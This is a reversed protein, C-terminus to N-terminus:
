GPAARHRNRGAKKAEYLAADALEILRPPQTTADPVLTASGLSITVCSAADSRAHSIALEEISRRVTEAVQAAGDAPTDAMLLCFEEGGYRAALDGPRTAGQKIAAAVQRLCDDGALHGYHDNFRKFFDVDILILSAPASERRCRRWEIDLAEDFRRRNAIGTLGDLSSLAELIANKEALQRGLEELARYADDRQQQALYSKSHARIRAVLEIQDPLKVLYDSAGIEFARSKDRPDERSSLVIIPIQAIVPHERMQQVLTFGDVGPMILDQLITTPRLAAATDIAKQADSCYHFEIDTHSALMRRIAEGVIPQDDVLLVATTASARHVM